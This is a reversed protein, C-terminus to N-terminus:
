WTVGAIVMWDAPLAPAALALLGCTVSAVGQLPALWWRAYHRSLSLAAAGEAVGTVILIVGAALLGGILTDSPWRVVLLGLMALATGRTLTLAVVVDFSRLERSM